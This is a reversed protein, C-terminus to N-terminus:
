WHIMSLTHSTTKLIFLHSVVGNRAFISCDSFIHYRKQKWSGAVSAIIQDEHQVSCDVVSDKGPHLVKHAVIGALQRNVTSLVTHPGHSVGVCRVALELQVLVVELILDTIICRKRQQQQKKTVSWKILLSNSMTCQTAAHWNTCYPRTTPICFTM